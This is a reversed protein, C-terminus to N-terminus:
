RRGGSKSAVADAIRTKRGRRLNRDAGRAEKGMMRARTNAQTRPVGRGYSEKMVPNLITKTAVSM